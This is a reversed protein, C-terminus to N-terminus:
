SIRIFDSKKARGEPPKRIDEYEQEDIIHWNNDQKKYYKHSDLPDDLMLHLLPKDGSLDIYFTTCGLGDKEQYWILRKEDFLRTLAYGTKPTYIGFGEKKNVEIIFKEKDVNQIDCEIPECDNTIVFEVEPKRNFLRSIWNQEKIHQKGFKLQQKHEEFSMKEHVIVNRMTVKDILAELESYFDAEPSTYWKDRKIFYDIKNQPKPGPEKIESYLVQLYIHSQGKYSFKAHKFLKKGKEDDWIKASKDMLEKVVCNPKPEYFSTELGDMLYGSRNYDSNEQTEFVLTINRLRNESEKEGVPVQSLVKAAFCVSKTGARLATNQTAIDQLERIQKFFEEHSLTIWTQDKMYHKVEDSTKSCFCNKSKLTYNVQLFINSNNFYYFTASQFTKDDGYSEWIRVDGDRLCLVKVGPRPEYKIGNLGLSVFGNVTYSPEVSAEDCDLTITILKSLLKAAEQAQFQKETQPKPSVTSLKSFKSNIVTAQSTNIKQEIEIIQSSKQTNFYIKCTLKNTNQDTKLTIGVALVELKDKNSWLVSNGIVISEVLYNDEIQCLKDSVGDICKYWEEGLKLLDFKKINQALQFFNSDFVPSSVSQWKGDQRVYFWDFLEHNKTSDSYTIQAQKVENDKLVLMLLTLKQSNTFKISETESMVISKVNKPHYTNVFTDGVKVTKTFRTLCKDSGFDFVNCLASNLSILLFGNSFICFFMHFNHPDLM